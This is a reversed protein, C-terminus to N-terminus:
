PAAEPAPELLRQLIGQAAPDTPDDDLLRLADRVGNRLAAATAEFRFSAKRAAGLEATLREVRARLERIEQREAAPDYEIV